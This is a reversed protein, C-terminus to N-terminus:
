HVLWPILTDFMFSEIGRYGAKRLCSALQHDCSEVCDSHANEAAASRKANQSASGRGPPCKQYNNPDPCNSICRDHQEYCADRADWPPNYGLDGPKPQPDSEYNWGGNAWGPGGWNGYHHFGRHDSPKPPVHRKSPPKWGSRGKQFGVYDFWNVGDNSVFAYLNIEGTAWGEEIPDRNLWRGHEPNYFRYEDNCYIGQTIINNM